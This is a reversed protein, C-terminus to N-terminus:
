EQYLTYYISHGKILALYLIPMPILVLSFVHSVRIKNNFLLVFFVMLFIWVILSASQSIILSLLILFVDFYKFRTSGSFYDYCVCSM